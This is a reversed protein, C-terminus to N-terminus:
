DDFVSDVFDCGELAKVAVADLDRSSVVLLAFEPFAHGGAEVEQSIRCGGCSGSRYASAEM